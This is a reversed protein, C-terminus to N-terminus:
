DDDDNYRNGGGYGGRGRGGGYGGRGRGGRFDGRGRGRGGGFGGRRDGGGSPRSMDIKLPRGDLDDGNKKVASSAADNDDFEVHCFGKFKGSPEKALRVAKVGGCDSFFNRIDSESSNYSL